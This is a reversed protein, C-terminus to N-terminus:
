RYRITAPVNTCCPLISKSFYFVSRFRCGKSPLFFTMVREVRNVRSRTLRIPSKIVSPAVACSGKQSGGASGPRWTRERKAVDLPTTKAPVSLTKSRLMSRPCCQVAEPGAPTLASVSLNTLGDNIATWTEANDTSRFVGGSATGAFLQGDIHVSLATITTDTLGSNVPQWTDGDDTSRYVGRGVWSSGQDRGRGVSAFLHEESNLALAIVPFDDRELVVEWTEGEDTSRGIGGVVGIFITGAANMVIAQSHAFGKTSWTEGDDRSRLFRYGIKCNGNGEEITAVAVVVQGSVAVDYYGLPGPCERRNPVPRVEAWTMGGDASRHVGNYGAAFLVDSLTGTCSANGPRVMIRQVCYVEM